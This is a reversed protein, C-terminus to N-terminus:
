PLSSVARGREAALPPRIAEAAAEIHHRMAQEAATVNRSAIAEYIARHGDRPEPAPWPTEASLPEFYAPILFSLLVLAGAHSVHTLCRNGCAQVVFRHFRFDLRNYDLMDLRNRADELAECLGALTQLQELTARGALLGAALSETAKRVEYVEDVEDATPQTVFCGRHRRQQLLGEGVLRTLASRLPTRSCGLEAAIQPEALHSGPRLQGSVLRGLLDEYILDSLLPDPTHDASTTGGSM